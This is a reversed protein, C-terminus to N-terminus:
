RIHRTPGSYTNSATAATRLGFLGHWVTKVNSSPTWALSPRCCQSSLTYTRSHIHAKPLQTHSTSPRARRNIAKPLVPCCFKLCERNNQIGDFTGNVISSNSANTEYHYIDGVHTVCTVISYLSTLFYGLFRHFILIPDYKCGGRRNACCICNGPYPPAMDVEPYYHLSHFISTRSSLPSNFRACFTDIFVSHFDPHTAQPLDSSRGPLEGLATLPWVWYRYAPRNHAQRSVVM